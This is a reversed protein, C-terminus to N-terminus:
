SGRSVWDHAVAVHPDEPDHGAVPLAPEVLM